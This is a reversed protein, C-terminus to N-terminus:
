LIECQTTWCDGEFKNGESCVIFWPIETLNVVRAKVIIRALYDPDEEWHLVKGFDAVVKEVDEQEWYDINFGLLMLWVDHNMTTTANNWGKNHEAFSIRVNGFM